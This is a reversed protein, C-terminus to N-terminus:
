KLFLKISLKENYENALIRRKNNWKDLYKLKVRLIAAQIPDLRSNVGKLENHYKRSSGYNRLLKIKEAIKYNNTTIAGGDGFGGLNKGPYFSWCVIDGHSGIKKNNYTAGHAQAADEVVYLNYKRAINLISNMDTPQGYLHVPIIAKTRENILEDIKTVDINHTNEDPEIPIIKAGVASIALWTAIYTNSPVIIEDGEKIDLARLSLILSDLGSAVGVAYKSECYYSWLEEFKEVEKGLIYWGSKLVESIAEDIEEKIESYTSGVNLFQIKM